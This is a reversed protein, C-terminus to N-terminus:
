LGIHLSLGNKGDTPYQCNTIKLSCANPFRVYHSLGNQTSVACIPLVYYMGDCKSDCNRLDDDASVFNALIAVLVVVFYAARM